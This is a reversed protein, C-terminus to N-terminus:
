DTVFPNVIHVSSELGLLHRDETYLVDAHAAEAAMLILVDWLPAATRASREAATLVMEASPTIITSKSLERVFWLAVGADLPPRSKRTVAWYFEQLVQTSAALSSAGLHDLFLQRARRQKQMQDPDFVYVLINTDFFAAQGLAMPLQNVGEPEIANM